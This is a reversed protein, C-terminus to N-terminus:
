IGLPGSGTTELEGADPVDFRFIEARYNQLANTSLVFFRMEPFEDKCLSMAHASADINTLTDDSMGFHHAGIGFEEVAKHVSKNIAVGKLADDSITPDDGSLEKKTSPYGVNYITLYHPVHKIWGDQKLFEFGAKITADSHSRATILSFPKQQNCVYVFLKWAPAQWKQSSSDVALRIQQIFYQKDPPTDPKDGYYMFLDSANWDKYPGEKGLQDKITGFYEKASVDKQVKTESNTIVLPVKVAMINKDFDFFYFDQPSAEM